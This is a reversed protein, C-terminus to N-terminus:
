PVESNLSRTHDNAGLDVPPYDGEAPDDRKIIQGMSLYFVVTRWYKPVGM